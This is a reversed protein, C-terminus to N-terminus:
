AAGTMNRRNTAHLPAGSSHDFRDELRRDFAVPGM